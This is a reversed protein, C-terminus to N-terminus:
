PRRGRRFPGGRLVQAAPVPHTATAAQRLRLRPGTCWSACRARRSDWRTRSTPARSVSSRPAWSRTASATPCPASSVLTARATARRQVTDELTEGYATVAAELPADVPVRARTVENRLIQHLWGRLHRVERRGQLAAFANLFAQQVADEGRGDSTLRRAQAQLEREYRRVIAAFAAEHGTQVLSVLQEDPEADLLRDSSELLRDSIVVAM